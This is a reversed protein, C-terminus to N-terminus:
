PERSGRIEGSPVAVDVARVHGDGGMAADLDSIDEPTWLMRAVFLAPIAVDGTDFTLVSLETRERLQPFDAADLWALAGMATPRDVLICGIWGEKASLTIYIM